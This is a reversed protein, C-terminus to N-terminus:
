QRIRQLDGRGGLVLMSSDPLLMPALEVPRGLVTSWADMGSGRDFARLTGDAAGVLLWPGYVAPAGTAAWGSVRLQTVEPSAGPLLRNLSGSQTVAYITDGSSAPSNLLPGDLKVRWRETLSDPDIGIVLSDGTAAVLEDGVRIWPSVVTGSARRRRAVTGDSLRILYLSDFSSAMFSGGGVDIAGTRGPTSRRRWLVRGNSPDLALIQGQRTIVILKGGILALPAQTYGSGTSWIENGSITSFAHVKGEPRDTAAYVVNGEVLVGGVLPGAVRHAWRTKGSRLDVAVVRRDSGGLYANLTDTAIPASPGRVPRSAWIRTLPTGAIPAAAKVEGPDFEPDPRFGACAANVTM